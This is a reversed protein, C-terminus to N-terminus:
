VEIDLTPYVKYTANSSRYEDRTYILTVDARLLRHVFEMIEDFDSKYYPTAFVRIECTDYRRNFRVCGNSDYKYDPYKDDSTMLYNRGCWTNGIRFWSHKNGLAHYNLSLFNVIARKKQDSLGGIHVHMGTNEHTDGGLDDTAMSFADFIADNYEKTFNESMIQSNFEIGYSSLSCDYYANGIIYSLGYNDELWDFLDEGYGEELEEFDTHTDDFEMEIGITYLSSDNEMKLTDFSM